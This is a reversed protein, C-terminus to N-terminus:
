KTPFEYGPYACGGDDCSWAGSGGDVLPLYAPCDAATECRVSTMACFSTAGGFKPTCIRPSPCPNVDSRVVTCTDMCDAHCEGNLCYIEGGACRVNALARAAPSDACDANVGCPGGVGVEGGGMGSDLSDIATDLSTIAHDFPLVDSVLLRDVAADTPRTTKSCAVGGLSCCFGCATLLGATKFRTTM